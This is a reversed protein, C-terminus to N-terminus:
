GAISRHEDNIGKGSFECKLPAKTPVRSSRGPKSDIEILGGLMMVNRKSEKDKGSKM